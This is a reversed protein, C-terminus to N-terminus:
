CRQLINSMVVTRARLRKMDMCFGGYVAKGGPEEVEAVQDDRTKLKRSLREQLLKFQRQTVPYHRLIRSQWIVHLYLVCNPRGTGTRRLDAPSVPRLPRLHQRNELM